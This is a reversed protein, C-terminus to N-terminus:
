HKSECSFEFSDYYSTCLVVTALMYYSIKLRVEIICICGLGIATTSVTATSTVSDIAAYNSLGLAEGHQM